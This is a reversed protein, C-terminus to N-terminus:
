FQQKEESPEFVQVRRQDKHGAKENAKFFGEDADM